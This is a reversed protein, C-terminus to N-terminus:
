QCKSEWEKIMKEQKSDSEERSELIEKRYPEGIDWCSKCMHDPYDGDYDNRVLIDWNFMILCKRCFLGKCIECKRYYNPDSKTSVGCDDCTYTKEIVTVTKTIKKEEIM